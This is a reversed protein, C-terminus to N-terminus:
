FSSFIKNLINKASVDNPKETLRGSRSKRVMPRFGQHNYQQPSPLKRPPIGLSPHGVGVPFQAARDANRPSLHSSASCCASGRHLASVNGV